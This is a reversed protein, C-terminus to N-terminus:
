AAPDADHLASIDVGAQQQLREVDAITLWDITDHGHIVRYWHSTGTHVAEVRWHRSGRYPGNQAAVVESRCGAAM